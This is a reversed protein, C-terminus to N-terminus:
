RLPNGLRSRARSLLTPMEGALGPGMTGLLGAPAEDPVVPPMGGGLMPTIANRMPDGMPGPMGSAEVPLVPPIRGLGPGGRGMMGLPPRIPLGTMPNVTGGRSPDAAGMLSRRLAVDGPAGYAVGGAGPGILQPPPLPKSPLPKSPLTNSQATSKGYSRFPNPM